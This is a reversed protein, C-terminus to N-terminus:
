YSSNAFALPTWRSTSDSLLCYCFGPRVFLFRMYLMYLPVSGFNFYYFTKGVRM